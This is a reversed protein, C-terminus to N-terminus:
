YHDSRKRTQRNTQLHFIYCHIKKKPKVVGGRWFLFVVVRFQMFPLVSSMDIVVKM